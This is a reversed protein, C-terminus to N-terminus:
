VNFYRRVQARPRMENNCREGAIHIYAPSIHVCAAAAMTAMLWLNTARRPKHKQQQQQKLVNEGHTESMTELLNPDVHHQLTYLM